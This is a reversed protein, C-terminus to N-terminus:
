RCLFSLPIYFYEHISVTCVVSIHSWEGDKFEDWSRAKRLAEESEEEEEEQDGGGAKEEEEESERHGGVFSLDKMKRQCGPLDLGEQRRCVTFSFCKRSILNFSFGFFLIFM